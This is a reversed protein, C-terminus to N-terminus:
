HGQIGPHFKKHSCSQSYQYRSHLCANVIVTGINLAMMLWYGHYTHSYTQEINYVDRM